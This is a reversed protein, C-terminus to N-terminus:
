ASTSYSRASCARCYDASAGSPHLAKGDMEVVLNGITLETLEGRENVLVVDEADPHAARARDYPERNTTKHFLFLEGSDVVVTSAIACRIAKSPNVGLKPFPMSEVTATGDRQLALRVRHCGASHTGAHADLAASSAAIPGDFGFYEASQALRSLHRDRRIYAGDALRMTEILAFPRRQTTLIASKALLEDYEGGPTSDHPIGGGEGYEAVSQSHDVVVTRIAVSFTCDGGPRLLGIAGCYVGRADRELAAIAHTAAIKPAGTVSGSPFLATFIDALSVEPRLTAAVSSTMQWVTPYRELTLLAPTHVSGTAAVRGVDNRLLDVIMLNEARDKESAALAAGALRDEDLWRGRRATGKMPRTEITNGRRAFFLEPSASVITFPGIDLFAAYAPQQAERLQSYYALGDGSWRARLRLTHNVQYVDGARIATRICEIAADYEPRETNPTWAGTDGEPILPLRKPESTIPADFVAFWALPTRARGPTRIAPEFAPAADYAVFGAVFRGAVAHAEATAVVERVDDLREAVLVALPDAFM